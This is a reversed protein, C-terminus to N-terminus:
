QKSKNSEVFKGVSGTLKKEKEERTMTKDAKLKEMEAKLDEETMGKDVDAIYKKLLDLLETEKQERSLSTDNKLSAVSSKFEYTRAKIREQEKKDDPTEAPVDGYSEKYADELKKMYLAKEEQNLNPDAAFINRAHKFKIVAIEKPMTNEIEDLKKQYYEEPVEGEPAAVVPADRIQDTGALTNQVAEKDHQAGMKKVLVIASLGVIIIVIIAIIIWNKKMSGGEKGEPKREDSIINANM